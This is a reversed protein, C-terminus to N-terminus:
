GPAGGQGGGGGGGGCPQLGSVGGLAEGGEVVDYQSNCESFGEFFSFTGLMLIGILLLLVLM